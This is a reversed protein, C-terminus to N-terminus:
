IVLLDWSIDGNLDDNFDMLDGNFDSNRHGNEMAINSM